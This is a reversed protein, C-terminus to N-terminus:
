TLSFSKLYTKLPHLCNKLALNFGDVMTIVRRFRSACAAQQRLEPVTAM